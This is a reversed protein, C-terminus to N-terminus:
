NPRAASSSHEVVTRLELLGQGREPPEYRYYVRVAGTCGMCYFDVFGNENTLKSAAEKEVAERDQCLLNSIGANLHRTSTAWMLDLRPAALRVFM